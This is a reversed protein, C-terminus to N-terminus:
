FIIDFDATFRRGRHGFFLGSAPDGINAHVAEPNFHNTLNYSSVSLRVTYKQNVAFDKSFRSDVSFFTPFKSAYPVGVYNQAADTPAYPFGNRYEISPGIRFALPLRIVGWALFRNPLDTPLNSFQNPRLIAAPFSGLFNSFDNLDGRAKSRVYSLFLQGDAKLRIKATTEFQRYRSQGTGSLLNAGINTLPDPAMRNLVVLGMSQNQM